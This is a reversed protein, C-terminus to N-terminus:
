CVMAAGDRWRDSAVPSEDLFSGGRGGIFESLVVGAPLGMHGLEGDRSSWAMERWAVLVGMAM